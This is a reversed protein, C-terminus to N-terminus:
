SFLISIWVLERLILDKGLHLFALLDTKVEVELNVSWISIQLYEM